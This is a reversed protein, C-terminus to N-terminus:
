IHILSLHERALHLLYIGGGVTIFRPLTIGLVDQWYIHQRNPWVSAVTQIVILGLVLTIAQELPLGTMVLLPISFIGFAFGIAGQIMAGCAVIIGILLYQM